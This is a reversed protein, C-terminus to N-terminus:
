VDEPVFLYGNRGHAKVYYLGADARSMAHDLDHENELISGGISITVPGSPSEINEAVLRGINKAIKELSEDSDVAMLLLFEEGGWRVFLDSDRINRHILNTMESLVRDGEAHGFSDNVKKFHDIDILLLGAMVKERKVFRIFVNLNLELFDRNYCGTLQDHSAKYQWRQKELQSETIDFFSMLYFEEDFASVEIKFARQHGFSNTMMVVRKDPDWSLLQMVWDTNAADLKGKHFYDASNLFHNLVNDSALVASEPKVGFFDFYAKNAFNIQQANAIIVINAQQDILKQLRALSEFHETQDNMLGEIMWAGDDASVKRILDTMHFTRGNKHRIRYDLQLPGNAFDHKSLELRVRNQDQPHIFDFLTKTPDSLLKESSYGTYYEIAQNVFNWAYGRDLRFRYVVIPLDELLQKYRDKLRRLRKENMRLETVDQVTGVSRVVEGNEDQFHECEEIVHRLRGQSTIVRHEVNYNEKNTLARQYAQNVMNRDDPHVMKMFNEFTPKFSQPAFGMIRFVEDSWYLKNKQLNLEWSGVHALEQTKAFLQNQLEIVQNKQQLEAEDRKLFYMLLTLVFAILISVAWFIFLRNEIATYETHDKQVILYGITQASVPNKVPIFTLLHDNERDSLYLTKTKNPDLWKSLENTASWPLMIRNMFECCQGSDGTREYLFDKSFPTQLYNSKESAFVKTDVVEKRIIFGVRQNLERSMESLITQMSVSTEVSGAPQNEWTMPFVFRYGNFIRGEEFGSIPQGTRNVYAVTSRIETLNDGFKLPRHFRLFSDNNRLHFHLQKLRFSEMSEYVPLLSNYIQLRIEHQREPTADNAELMAQRYVPRNIINNFVLTASKYFGQEVSQKAVQALEEQNHIEQTQRDTSLMHFALSSLVFFLFFTGIFLWKSTQQRVVVSQKLIKESENPFINETQVSM